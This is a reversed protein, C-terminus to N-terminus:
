EWGWCKQNGELGTAESHDRKKSGGRTPITGSAGGERGM